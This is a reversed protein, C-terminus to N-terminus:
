DVTGGKHTGVGRVASRISLAATQRHALACLQGFVTM